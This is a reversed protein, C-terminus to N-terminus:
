GISFVLPFLNFLICKLDKRGRPHLYWIGPLLLVDGKGSSEHGQGGRRFNRLCKKRLFGLFPCAREEEGGRKDRKQLVECHIHLYQTLESSWRFPNSGDKWCLGHFFTSLPLDPTSFSSSSLYFTNLYALWSPNNNVHLNNNILLQSCSPSFFFFYLNSSLRFYQLLVFNQKVTLGVSTELRTNDWCFMNQSRSPFYNWRRQLAKDKMPEDLILDDPLSSFHKFNVEMCFLNRQFVRM